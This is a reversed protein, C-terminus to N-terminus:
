LDWITVTYAVFNYSTLMIKKYIQAIVAFRVTKGKIKVQKIREKMKVIHNVLARDSTPVLELITEGSFKAM